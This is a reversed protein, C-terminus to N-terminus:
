PGYRSRLLRRQAVRARRLGDYLNLPLLLSALLRLQSERKISWEADSGAIQKFDDLYVAIRSRKRWAADPDPGYLGRGFYTVFRRGFREEIHRRVCDLQVTLLERNAPSSRFLVLNDGHFVYATLVTDIIRVGAMFPLVMGLFLDASHPFIDEPVHLEGAVSTRVSMSSTMGNWPHGLLILSQLQAPVKALSVKRCTWTRGWVFERATEGAADVINVKDYVLGAAPAFRFAEVVQRVKDPYFYDDADLLCIIDGEAQRFGENLASAQGGRAKRIYRIRDAYPRVIEDTNDTSGDDVVLIEVRSASYTQSIASDIARGLFRGYNCTDILVTVRLEDGRSMNM